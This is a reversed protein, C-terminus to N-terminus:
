QAIAWHGGRAVGSPKHYISTKLQGNEDNMITIDLFDVSTNIIYNIKIKRIQENLNKKLKM